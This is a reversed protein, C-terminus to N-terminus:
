PDARFIQLLDFLHSVRDARLHFHKPFLAPIGRRDKLGLVAHVQNVVGLVIRLPVFPDRGAPDAFRFRLTPPAKTGRSKSTVCRTSRISSPRRERPIFDSSFESVRASWSLSFSRRRRFSRRGIRSCRWSRRLWSAPLSASAA